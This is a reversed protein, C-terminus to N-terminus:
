IGLHAPGLRGQLLEQGDEGVEEVRDLRLDGRAVEQVLVAGQDLIGKLGAGDVGPAHPHHLRTIM